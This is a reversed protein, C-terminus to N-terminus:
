FNEYFKTHICFFSSDHLVQFDYFRTKHVKWNKSWILKEDFCWSVFNPLKWFTSFNPNTFKSSELIQYNSFRFILSQTFVNPTFIQDKRFNKRFSLFKHNVLFRFSPFQTCTLKEDFDSFTCMCSFKFKNFNKCVVLKRIIYFKEIMISEQIIYINWDYYIRQTM